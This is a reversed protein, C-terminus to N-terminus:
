FMRVWCCPQLALSMYNFMLQDVFIAARTYCINFVIDHWTSHDFLSNLAMFATSLVKVLISVLAIQNLMNSCCKEVIISCHFQCQTSGHTVM